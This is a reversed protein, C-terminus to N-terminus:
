RSRVTPFLFLGVVYFKRSYRPCILERRDNIRLTSPEVVFDKM